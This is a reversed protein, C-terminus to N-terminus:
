NPVAGMRHLYLLALGYAEEATDALFEKREGEWLTVVQYGDGVRDLRYFAAGLRERLQDERPLWIAEDQEIDDLAWQTTGNFGIVKGKPLEHVQVVMDSLVFVEDIGRDPLVFQDGPAPSWALGAERLRVALELPIMGGYQGPNRAGVLRMVSLVHARM